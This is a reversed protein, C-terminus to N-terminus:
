GRERGAALGRMYPAAFAADLAAAAEVRRVLDAHIGSTEEAGRQVSGVLYGLQIPAPGGAAEGARANLETAARVLAVGVRALEGAQQDEVLCSSIKAGGGLRVEAPAQRLAELYPAPGRLCAAPANEEGEGCGAALLAFLPVALALRRV